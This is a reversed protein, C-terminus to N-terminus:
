ENLRVIPVRCDLFKGVLTKRALLGIQEVQIDKRVVLSIGGGQFKSVKQKKKGQGDM